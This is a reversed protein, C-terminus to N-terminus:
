AQVLAALAEVARDVRALTRVPGLVALSELLPPSVTKGTAAVRLIGFLQGAKLGLEDALARLPLEMAESTFHPVAALLDRARRLAALSAEATMKQGVLQQADCVLDDKFFFDTVAPVESLTKLREQILPVVPRVEAATVHVGAKALFPLLPILWVYNEM